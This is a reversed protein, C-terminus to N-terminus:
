DSRLSVDRRTPNRHGSHVRILEEVSNSRATRTVPVTHRSPTSPAEEVLEFVDDGGLMRLQLAVIHELQDLLPNERLILHWVLHTGSLVSRRHASAGLSFKEPVRRRADVYRIAIERITHVMESIRTGRGRQAGNRAPERVLQFLRVSPGSAAGARLWAVLCLAHVSAKRLARSKGFAGCGLAVTRVVVLCRRISRSPPVQRPPRRRVRTPTRPGAAARSPPPGERPGFLRAPM